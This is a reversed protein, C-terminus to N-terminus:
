GKAQILGYKGAMKRQCRGSERAIWASARQSCNQNTQALTILRLEAYTMGEPEM